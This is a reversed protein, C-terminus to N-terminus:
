FSPSKVKNANNEPALYHISEFFVDDDHCFPKENAM